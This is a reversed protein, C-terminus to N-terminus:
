WNIIPVTIELTRSEDRKITVAASGQLKTAGEDDTYFVAFYLSTQSETISLETFNLIFEAVGNNDTVVQKKADGPRTSNTPEQDKYMYVTKGKQAIGLSNKVTVKVNAGLVPEDKKCGTLTFVFIALLAFFIGKKM